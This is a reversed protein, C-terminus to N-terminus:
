SEPVNPNPSKKRVRDYHVQFYTAAYPDDYLRSNHKFDYRFIRPVFASRGFPDSRKAPLHDSSPDM